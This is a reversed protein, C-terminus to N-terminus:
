LNIRRPGIRWQLRNKTNMGFHSIYFSNSIATPHSYEILFRDRQIRWRVQGARLYTLIMDTGGLNIQVSRKDDHTLKVSSVGTYTSIVYNEVASDYWRYKLNGGADLTAVSWRMNQDFTFSFAVVGAETFLATSGGTDQPELYVTSDSSNWYGKWTQYKLGESPDQIAIGGFEYDTLEDTAIRDPYMYPARLKIDEYLSPNSPIM